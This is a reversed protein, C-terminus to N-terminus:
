RTAAGNIAMRMLLADEVPDAYYRVRKGCETFGRGRYLGLAAGNSARVELILESVQSGRLEVLLAELLMGGLGRRQADPAVAITELEAEPAVVSAVLFGAVLGGDEAVLAIRRPANEPNIASLYASDLWRPAHPLDGAIGLVREVDGASMRRVQVAM